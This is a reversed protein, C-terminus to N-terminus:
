LRAIGAQHGGRGCLAKIGALEVPEVGLFRLWLSIPTV